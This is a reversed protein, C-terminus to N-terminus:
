HSETKANITRVLADPDVGLETLTEALAKAGSEDGETSLEAAALRETLMLRILEHYGSAITIYRMSQTPDEGLEATAPDSDQLAIIVLARCRTPDIRKLAESLQEATAIRYEDTVPQDHIEGYAQCLDRVAMVQAIKYLTNNM